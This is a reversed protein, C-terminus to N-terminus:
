ATAVAEEKKEEAKAEEKPEEIKWFPAPYVPVKSKKDDMIPKGDQGEGVKVKETKEVYGQIYDKPELGAKENTYFINNLNAFAEDRIEELQAKDLVYQKNDKAYVAKGKFKAGQAGLLNELAFCANYYARLHDIVPTTKEESPREKLGQAIEFELVPALIDGRKLIEGSALKGQLEERGKNFSEIRKQFDESSEKDGKKPLKINSIALYATPDAHPNRLAAPTREAMRKYNELMGITLRKGQKELM